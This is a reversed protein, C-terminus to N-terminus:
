LKFITLDIKPINVILDKKTFDFKISNVIASFVQLRLEADYGKSNLAKILFLVSNTFNKLDRDPKAYSEIISLISLIQNLKIIIELNNKGTKDYITLIESTIEFIEEKKKGLIVRENESIEMYEAQRDSYFINNRRSRVQHNGHDHNQVQELLIM